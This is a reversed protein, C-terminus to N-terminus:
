DILRLLSESFTKDVEDIFYSKFVRGNLIRWRKRLKIVSKIM